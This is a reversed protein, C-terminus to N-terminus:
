QLVGREWSSAVGVIPLNIVSLILQEILPPLKKRM